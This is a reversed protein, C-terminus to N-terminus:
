QWMNSLCYLYCERFLVHVHPTPTSDTGWYFSRELFSEPVEWTVVSCLSDKTHSTSEFNLRTSLAEKAPHVCTASHATLAGHYNFASHWHWYLTVKKSHQGVYFTWQLNIVTNSFSLSCSKEHGSVTSGIEMKSKYTQREICNKELLQISEEREQKEWIAAVDIRSTHNLYKSIGVICSYGKQLNQISLHSYNHKQVPDLRKAKWIMLPRDFYEKIRASSSVHLIKRCKKDGGLYM